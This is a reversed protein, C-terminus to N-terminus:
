PITTSHRPRRGLKINVGFVLLHEQGLPAYHQNRPIRNSMRGRVTPRQKCRISLSHHATELKWYQHGVVDAVEQGPANNPLQGYVEDASEV